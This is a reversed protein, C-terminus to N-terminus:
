WLCLVSILELELSTNRRNFKGYEPTKKYVNYNVHASIILTYIEKPYENGCVCYVLWNWNWRRTEVTLNAMNPLKKYVNYNVHANIILTYIEKPYENGCVCYM